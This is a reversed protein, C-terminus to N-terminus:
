VRLHKNIDHPDRTDTEVPVRATTTPPPTPTFVPTITPYMMSQQQYSDAM